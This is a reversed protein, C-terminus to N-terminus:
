SDTQLYFATSMKQKTGLNKMLLQWFNSTFLKDRNSIIEKPTGHNGIINRIFTYVLDTATSAKKYLLFYAYKSLKCVVILISNYLIKTLPKQLIPLKTIFDLSISKWVTTFILFLKLLSYAKYQKVKNKKCSNYNNIINTIQQKFGLLNWYQKIRNYIALLKQHKHVLANHM